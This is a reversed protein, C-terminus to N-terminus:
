FHCDYHTKLALILFVEPTIKVKHLNDLVYAVLGRDDLNRNKEIWELAEADNDIDIFTPPCRYELELQGMYYDSVEREKRIYDIILEVMLNLVYQSTDTRYTDINLPSPIRDVLQERIFM